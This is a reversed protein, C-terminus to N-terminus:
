GNFTAEVSLVDPKSYKPVPSRIKEDSLREGKVYIANENEGFRIWLDKCDGDPCQFYKGTIEIFEKNPSKVQGYQPSIATIKPANFYQYSYNSGPNLVTQWDNKNFSFELIAKSDTEAPPTRWSFEEQTVDSALSGEGILNNENM